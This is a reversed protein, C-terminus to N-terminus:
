DDLISELQEENIDMLKAIPVGYIALHVEAGTFADAFEVGKVTPSGTINRLLQDFNISEHAKQIAEEVTGAQLPMSTVEVVAFTKIIFGNSEPGADNTRRIRMPM